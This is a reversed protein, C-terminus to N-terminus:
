DNFPKIHSPSKVLM